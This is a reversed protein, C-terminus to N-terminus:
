AGVEARPASPDVGLLSRIADETADYRGEGFTVYRRQGSRDHLYFAPWYRNAFARWNVRDPDLAVPYQIGEEVVFEAVNAPDAEYSFEPTHISLVVLGDGAYRDHWAKVYPLTHRCNICGFTWFDYLVVKGALDAPGLPASNLWQDAMVPPAASALVPLSLEGGPATPPPSIGAVDEADTRWAVFVAITSVAVIAALLLRATRATM